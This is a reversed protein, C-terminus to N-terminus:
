KKEVYYVGLNNGVCREGCGDPSSRGNGVPVNLLECKDSGPIAPNWWAMTTSGGGDMNIGHCAGFHKLWSGLEMTTAGESAPQRGDITMFYAYRGNQSLGIGTRPVTRSDGKVADGHILVFAFGSVATEIDNIKRGDDTTIMRMSRNTGIILSPKGSGPSVLIGESIALGSLNTPTEANWAVPWPLFADANIAAVVKKDTSQSELMFRRTTKRLTETANEAWPSFRPTTYFRLGPTTVDIRMCNVNMKRPSSVSISTREIGRYPGLNVAGSWDYTGSQALVISALMFFTTIVRCMWGFGSKVITMM